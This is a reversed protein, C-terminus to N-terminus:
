RVQVDNSINACNLVQLHTRKMLNGEQKSIQRKIQDGNPPKLQPRVFRNQLIFFKPAFKSGTKIKDASIQTQLPSDM